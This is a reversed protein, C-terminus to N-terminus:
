SPACGFATKAEQSKRGSNRGEGGGGQEPVLLSTMNACFYKVCALGVRNLAPVGCGWIDEQKKTWRFTRQGERELPTQTDEHSLQTRVRMLRRVQMRLGGEAVTNVAVVRDTSRVRARGQPLVLCYFPQIVRELSARQYGLRRPADAEGNVVGLGAAPRNRARGCGRSRARGGGM